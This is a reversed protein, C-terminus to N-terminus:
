CKWGSDMGGWVEIGSDMGSGEFMGEGMGGWVEMGSDMGSREFM